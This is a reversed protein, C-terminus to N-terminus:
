KKVTGSPILPCDTNTREIQLGEFLSFAVAELLTDYKEIFINFIHRIYLALGNISYANRTELIEGCELFYLSVRALDEYTMSIM